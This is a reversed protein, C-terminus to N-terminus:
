ALWSSACKCLQHHVLFCAGHNVKLEYAISGAKWPMGWTSWYINPYGLDIINHCLWCHSLTFPCHSSGARLRPENIRGRDSKSIQFTATLHDLLLPRNTKTLQSSPSPQTPSGLATAGRKDDRHLSPFSSSLGSQVPQPQPRSVRRWMQFTSTMIPWCREYQNCSTSFEWTAIHKKCPLDHKPGTFTRWSWFQYSM